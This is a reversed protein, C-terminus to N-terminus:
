TIPMAPSGATQNTFWFVNSTSTFNKQTSICNEMIKPPHMVKRLLEVVKQTTLPIRIPIRFEVRFELDNMLSGTLRQADASDIHLVQGPTPQEPLSSEVDPDM